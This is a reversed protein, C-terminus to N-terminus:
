LLVNKIQIKFLKRASAASLAVAGPGSEDHAFQAEASPAAAAAAALLSRLPELDKVSDWFSVIDKM